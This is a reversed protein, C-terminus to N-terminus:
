LAIKTTDYDKEYAKIRRYFTNPKLKILKMFEKSNIDHAKWKDYLKNFKDSDVEIPKRGKYKGQQKAIKIGELQREKISERELEALAAFLVLVFRGSPTSTDISEKKSIFAVNKEKLQDVICLLDRVNRALRSISEIVVIDGDRVFMLMDKLGQRDKNKGSAKDIFVKEVNLLKMLEDQRALNQGETSVREYGVRM